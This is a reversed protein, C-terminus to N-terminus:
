VTASHSTRFKFVRTRVRCPCVFQTLFMSYECCSLARTVDPLFHLWHKRLKIISWPVPLSIYISLFFQFRFKYHYLSQFRFIYQYLSQYRFKFHNKMGFLKRKVSFVLIAEKNNMQNLNLNFRHSDFWIMKYWIM